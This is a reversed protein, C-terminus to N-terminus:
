VSVNGRVRLFEVPGGSTNIFQRAAGKPITATDGAFLRWAENPLKVTLEGSQVFLVESGPYSIQDASADPMLKMHSIKFGHPWGLKADSGILKRKILGGQSISSVDEDSTICCNRLQEDSFISLAEVQAKSTVPMPSQGEPVIEGKGTDILNGNEMLVLGYNKAMEFVYPAWLVSGPDDGGLVAWLYGIDEGINEFGRFVGTPISILDGPELIVEADEGTEGTRFAWRGKHIYFVEATDHSHQSNVCNAPQRAGGINFGHPEPIHVYQNPNESVGPGIITFNEKQDSGPTRTDIFADRCPRLEGYRVIRPHSDTATLHEQKGM